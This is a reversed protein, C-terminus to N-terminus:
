NNFMASQIPQVRKQSRIKRHKRADRVANMWAMPNEPLNPHVVGLKNCMHRLRRLHVERITMGADTAEELTLLSEELMKRATLSQILIGYVERSPHMGLERMREKNEMASNIDHRVIHMKIIANYVHRDPSIDHETRFKEVMEEAKRHLTANGIVGVIAALTGADPSVDERDCMEKYIELARDINKSRRMRLNDSYDPNPARGFEVLDWLKDIEHTSVLGEEDLELEGGAISKNNSVYHEKMSVGGSSDDLHGLLTNLTKFADVTSKTGETGSQSTTFPVKEGEEEPEMTALMKNLKQMMEDDFLDKEESEDSESAENNEDDGSLAALKKELAVEGAAGDLNEAGGMEGLFSEWEKRDEENLYISPDMEESNDSNLQKMLQDLNEDGGSVKGGKMNNFMEELGKDGGFIDGLADDGMGSSASDSEDLLGSSLLGPEGGMDPSAGLATHYSKPTPLAARERSGAQELALVREKLVENQRMKKGEIELRLNDDFSEQMEEDFEAIDEYQMKPRKGRDPPDEKIFTKSVTALVFILIVACVLPLSHARASVSKTLLTSGPRRTSHRDSRTRLLPPVCMGALSVMINPVSWKIATACALDAYCM